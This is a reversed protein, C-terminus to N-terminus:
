GFFKKTRDLYQLAPGYSNNVQFLSLEELQTMEGLFTLDAEDMNSLTLKKVSKMDAIKDLNITYYALIRLDEVKQLKALPAFDITYEPDASFDVRRLETLNEIGDLTPEVASFRNITLETVNKLKYISDLVGECPTCEITIEKLDLKSLVDVPIHVGTLGLKETKLESFFSIDELDEADFRLEKLKTLKTLATPEILEFHPSISLKELDPLKEAIEVIDIIKEGSYFDRGYEYIVVDYDESSTHFLAEDTLDDYVTIYISKTDAAVPTSGISLMERGDLTIYKENVIELYDSGSAASAYVLLADDAAEYDISIHKFEDSNKLSAFQEQEMTELVYNLVAAAAKDYDPEAGESGSHGDIVYLSCMRSFYPDPEYEGYLSLLEQKYEDYSSYYDTLNENYYDESLYTETIKAYIFAEYEEESLRKFTGDDLQAILYESSNGSFLESPQATTKDFTEAKVSETQAAEIDTEEQPATTESFAESAATESLSAESISTEAADNEKGCGVMLMAAAIFAAATKASFIVRKM